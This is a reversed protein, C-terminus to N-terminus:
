LYLEMKVVYIQHEYLLLVFNYIQNPRNGSLFLDSCVRKDSLVGWFRFKVLDGARSVVFFFLFVFCLILLGDDAAADFM